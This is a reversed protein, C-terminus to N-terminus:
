AARAATLIEALWGGRPVFDDLQMLNSPEGGPM